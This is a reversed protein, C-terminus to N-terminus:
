QRPNETLKGIQPKVPQGREAMLKVDKATGGESLILQAAATTAWLQFDAALESAENQLSQHAKSAFVELHESSTSITCEQVAIKAAEEWACEKRVKGDLKKAINKVSESSKLTRTVVAQPELNVRVQLGFHPCWPCATDAKVSILPRIDKSVIGYDLMRKQGCSCTFEVNEPEVVEGRISRVWERIEHPEANWDGLILFKLKCVELLVSLKRLIALNRGRIGGVDLYTFIVLMDLAKTRIVMAVFDEDHHLEEPVGKVKSIAASNMWKSFGALIGGHTGTDCTRVKSATAQWGAARCRLLAAKIQKLRLHTEVAGIVHDKRRLIYKTAKDGLATVNSFYLNLSKEECRGGAAKCFGENGFNQVAAAHQSCGRM